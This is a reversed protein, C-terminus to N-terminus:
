QVLEFVSGTSNAGGDNTTGYIKRKQLLVGALSRQGRPVNFSTITWAGGGSPPSLKFVVGWTNTGGGKTTGYLSGTADFTLTDNPFASDQQGTFM